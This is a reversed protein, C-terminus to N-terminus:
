IQTDYLENICATKRSNGSESPLMDTDPTTDYAECSGHNNPAETRCFIRNPEGISSFRYLFTYVSKIPNITGLQNYIILCTTFTQANLASKLCNGHPSLVITPSLPADRLPPCFALIFKALYTFYIGNQAILLLVQAILQNQFPVKSRYYQHKFLYRNISITHM